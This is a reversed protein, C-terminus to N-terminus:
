ASGAPEEQNSSVQPRSELSMVWAPPRM